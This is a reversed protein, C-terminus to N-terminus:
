YLIGSWEGTELWESFSKLEKLVCGAIAIGSVRLVSIKKVNKWSSCLLKRNPEEVSCM